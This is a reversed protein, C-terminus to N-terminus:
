RGEAGLKVAPTFPPAAPVAFVVRATESALDLLMPTGDSTSNLRFVANHNLREMTSVSCKCEVTAANRGSLSFVAIATSNIRAVPLVRGDASFSMALAGELEERGQALVEFAAEKGADRILTLSGGGAVAADQSGPRFAIASIPDALPLDAAGEATIRVARRNTDAAVAALIVAGSDDIAAGEFALGDPLPISERLQIRDPLGTVIRAESGYLLAAATGSPSLAIRSPSLPVALAQARVVSNEFRLAQVAGDTDVILAFNRGSSVAAERLKADSQISQDVVAAGPIGRIREIRRSGPDFGYGLLPGELTAAWQPSALLSVHVLLAVYGTRSFFL